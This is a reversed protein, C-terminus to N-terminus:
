PLEQTDPFSPPVVPSVLRLTRTGGRSAVVVHDDGIRVIRYGAHVDGTRFLRPMADADSFQVLALRVGQQVVIGSLHPLPASAGLAASADMDASQNDSALTDMPPVTSAGGPMGPAAFRVTPARRSASFVNGHIVATILSDTIRRASPAVTPAVVEVRDGTLSDPAFPSSEGNPSSTSVPWVLFAVAIALCGIAAADLWRVSQLQKATVARRTTM